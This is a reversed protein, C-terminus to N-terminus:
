QRCWGAGNWVLTGGLGDPAYWRGDLTYVNNHRQVVPEAGREAYRPSATSVYRYCNNKGDSRTSKWEIRYGEFEVPPAIPSEEYWGPGCPFVV